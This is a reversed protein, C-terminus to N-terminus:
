SYRKTRKDASDSELGPTCDLKQAPIAQNRSPAAAAYTWLQNASPLPINLNSRSQLGPTLGRKLEYLSALRIRPQLQQAFHRHVLAASVIHVEALHLNLFNRPPNPAESPILPLITAAAFIKRVSVGKLVNAHNGDVCTGYRADAAAFASANEAAQIVQM